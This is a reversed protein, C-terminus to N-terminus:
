PQNLLNKVLKRVIIKGLIFYRLRVDAKGIFTSKYLDM